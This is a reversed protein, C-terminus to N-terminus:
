VASSFRLGSASYLAWGILTSDNPRQRVALLSDLTAVAAPSRSPDIAGRVARMNALDQIAAIRPQSQRSSNSALERAAVSMRSGALEIASERVSRYAAAAFLLVVITLASLLFLPLRVSLSLRRRPPPPTSGPTRPWSGSSGLQSGAMSGRSHVAVAVSSPTDHM